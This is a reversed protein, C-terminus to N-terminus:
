PKNNINGHNTKETKLLFIDNNWLEKMITNYLNLLDFRHSGNGGEQIFLIFQYSLMDSARKNHSLANTELVIIACSLYKINIHAISCILGWLIFYQCFVTYNYLWIHFLHINIFFNKGNDAAPCFVMECKTTASHAYKSIPQSMPGITPAKVPHIGSIPPM